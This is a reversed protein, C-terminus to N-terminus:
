ISRFAAPRAPHMQLAARRCSKGRSIRSSSRLAEKALWPRDPMANLAEVLQESSMRDVNRMIEAADAFLEVKVSLSDSAKAVFRSAAIRAWRPWTAGALDAVALLPMWNDYLCLDVGDAAPRAQRLLDFNDQVWRAIKQSLEELEPHPDIASFRECAEGRKRRRMNIVISRDDLTDPLRGILAIAKPCWTSFARPEHDDGVTRIVQASPRLHSANLLGRLEENLNQFTDAEDILFAPKYLEIARFIAAPSVSASLLPRPLLYSLVTLTTSKGCGKEPSSLNLFPSIAFADIAYAHVCWFAIAVLDTNDAVVYRRIARCLDILLEAGTVPDAHPAIERLLLAKDQLDGSSARPMAADILKAPASIGIEDLKKLAAERVTARRIDDADTLRPALSRLAQEVAALPSSDQIPEKFDANAPTQVKKSDFMRAGHPGIRKRALYPHDEPAPQSAKWIRMAEQKAEARRRKEDAKRQHRMADVKPRHEAQEEANLTRGIDARWTENIGSRWDGFAGAPIGDAHLVYWGSDDRPKGNTAFRHLRGDADIREPPNLEAAQIADRFQTLYSTV